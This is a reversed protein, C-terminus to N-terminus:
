FWPGPSKSLPFAKPSVNRASNMTAPKFPKIPSRGSGCASNHYIEYCRNYLDNHSLQHYTETRSSSQLKKVTGQTLEDANTEITRILRDSLHKNQNLSM